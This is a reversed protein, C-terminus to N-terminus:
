INKKKLEISNEFKRLSRLISSIQISIFNINCNVSDCKSKIDTIYNNRLTVKEKIENKFNESDSKM